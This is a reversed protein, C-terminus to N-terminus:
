EKILVIEDLKRRQRDAFEAEKMDSPLKNADGYYGFATVSVIAYEDTSLGFAEAAKAPDFGSMQHCHLGQNVAELNMFAVAQGLDYQHTANPKNNHTSNKRALNLVLLNANSAWKQNWEVLSGLINEYTKSGKKGVIFRWPQENFASPAWRAAELISNIVSDSIEKPEYARNSWRNEILSNIPHNNSTKKEM